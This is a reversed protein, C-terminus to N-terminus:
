GDHLSQWMCSFSYLHVLLVIRCCCFMVGGAFFVFLCLFIVVFLWDDVDNQGVLKANPCEDNTM